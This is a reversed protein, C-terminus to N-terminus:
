GGQGHAAAGDALAGHVDALLDTGSPQLPAGRMFSTAAEHWGIGRLAPSGTPPGKEDGEGAPVLRRYPEDPPAELFPASSQNTANLYEIEVKASNVLVQALEGLGKARKIEDALAEGTAASRMAKMQEILLGRVTDIHNDQTTM